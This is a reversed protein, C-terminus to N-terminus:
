HVGFASGTTPKQPPPVFGAEFAPEDEEQPATETVSTASVVIEPVTIQAIDQEARKQLAEQILTHIATAAGDWSFRAVCAQRRVDWDAREQATEALAQECAAIFSDHGDSLRVVDSYLGVVDHIPTSVVTKEAALYELTKTPSIFRTSENLAFPLLAVDWGALFYPLREYGQQGLWHINDRQPLSAPDIKVVPGVMVIQWEPHADALRAVLETDLREDIVGYFGMRPRGLHGQLKEVNPDTDSRPAFHGADVASPFCHINHHKDRKSEFLSPGGTLVLDARRMLETERDLMAQPAGKFAALEDMCDYIIAEPELGELLPLAMPTYCWVMYDDVGNEQLYDDLLHRLTPMQADSFGWQEVPTHPRLVTINESPEFHQLFAEGDIRVPEEFVIVNYHRALRSLLHQPRQYVFDWRLHSFVILNKMNKEGTNLTSVALHQPLRQQWRRLSKALPWHLRRQIPATKNDTEAPLVADWLGSHHWHSLDQWDPRDVAPYLCLGEVPVGARRVRAVEAAIDNLWASRGEGVHGTEAVVVPRRYREWVETLLDGFPLRRPDNLHWHLRENTDVEWQGSHYHNVGLLDLAAPHGGLQPERRGALMDWAQWQYDRVEQARAALDPRDAPHTIHVVPEIHLFRARPDVERIAEMAALTAKVLRCKLAYGSRPPQDPDPAHADGRYPHMLNTETAAWAFFSIENIPTYVPPLDSLPRIMAATKAAYEVFRPLFSDSFLDVDEPMGYHMLTWLVQIRHRQAASAIRLLRSFDYGGGQAIPRACLRWGLSERVTRIGLRALRAFDEEVQEAHGSLAAMDLPQGWGNVHDAGEFGAMWFSRFVGGPARRVMGGPQGFARKRFTSGTM